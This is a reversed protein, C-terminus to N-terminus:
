ELVFTEFAACMFWAEVEFSVWLGCKSVVVMFDM